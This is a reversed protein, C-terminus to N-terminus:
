RFGAPTTQDKSSDKMTKIMYYTGAAGAVTSLLSFVMMGAGPGGQNFRKGHRPMTRPFGSASTATKASAQLTVTQAAAAASAQLGPGPREPGAAFLAGAPVALAYVLLACILKKM